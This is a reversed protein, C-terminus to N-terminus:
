HKSLIARVNIEILEYATLFGQVFSDNIQKGDLMHSKLQLSFDWRENQLMILIEESPSRRKKGRM